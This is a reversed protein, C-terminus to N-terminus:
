VSFGSEVEDLLSDVVKLDHNLIKEKPSKWDLVRVPTRLWARTHKLDNDFLNLLHAFIAALESLPQQYTLASSYRSIASPDKDLYEAIEQQTWDLLKALKVADYRGEDDIAETLLRPYRMQEPKIQRKMGTAM